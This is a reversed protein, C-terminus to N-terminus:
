LKNKKIFNRAEEHAPHKRKAYKKITNFYQKAERKNNEKLAIKGLGLLSYLYYGSEEAEIEEGFSVARKYYQKAESIEGMREHYQGAFFAAYRGSTAEYGVYSSDIKNLIEISEKAAASTFGSAYLTRAYYRHFYPNNPFNNHLSETIRLAEATHGPGNELSLIRMLFYQAEIRAYFANNAVERLQKLGLAKDGDPFLAM